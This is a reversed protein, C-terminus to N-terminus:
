NFTRQKVISFDNILRQFFGVEKKFNYFRQIIKNTKQDNILRKPLKVILYSLILILM